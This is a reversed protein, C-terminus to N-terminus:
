DNDSPRWRLFRAELLEALRTVVFGLTGAVVFYAFATASAGDLQAQALGQGIGPLGGIVEAGVAVLVAVTTALRLGTMISPTATPLAVRLFYLRFRIRYSRATEIISEEIGRAGYITQVILPFSCALVIVILKTPLTTGYFLIIVPLLAISPFSRGIDVLIRTSREVFPSLGALLGIPIAIVASTVLGLMAGGLTAGVDGWFSAQGLLSVLAVVVESFPPLLSAPLVGSRAIVEWLIIAGAIVGIQAAVRSLKSRESGARRAEGTRRLTVSLTM